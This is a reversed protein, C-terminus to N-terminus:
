APKEATTLRITKNDVSAGGFIEPFVPEHTFFQNRARLGM